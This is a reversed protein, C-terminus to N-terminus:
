MKMAESIKEAEVILQLGKLFEEHEMSGRLRVKINDAIYTESKDGYQIEVSISNGSLNEIGLITNTHNGGNDDRYYTIDSFIAANADTDSLKVEIM